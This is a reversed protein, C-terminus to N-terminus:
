APAQTKYKELVAHINVGFAETQSAVEKVVYNTNEGIWLGLIVRHCLSPDRHLGLLVPTPGHERIIQEVVDNADLHDLTSEHYAAAFAEYSIEKSAFSKALEQAPALWKLNQKESICSETPLYSCVGVPTRFKSAMKNYSLGIIKSTM